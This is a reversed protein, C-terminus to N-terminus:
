LAMLRNIPRLHVTFCKQLTLATFSETLTERSWIILLKRFIKAEINGLPVPATNILKISQYPEVLEHWSEKKESFTSSMNEHQSIPRQKKNKTPPPPSNGFSWWDRGTAFVKLCKFSFDSNFSQATNYCSFELPRWLRLKTAHLIQLSFFNYSGIPCLYKEAPIRIHHQSPTLKRNKRDLNIKWFKWVAYLRIM